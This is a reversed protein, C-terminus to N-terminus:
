DKFPEAEIFRTWKSANPPPKCGPTKCSPSIILHLPTSIISLAWLRFNVVHADNQKETSLESESWSRIGVPVNPLTAVIASPLDGGSKYSITTLILNSKRM